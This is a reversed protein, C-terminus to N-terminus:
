VAALLSYKVLLCIIKLNASEANPTGESVNDSIKMYIFRINVLDHRVTYIGEPGSKSIEAGAEFM